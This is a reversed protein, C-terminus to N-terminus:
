TDVSMRKLTKYVVVMVDNKQIKEFVDTKLPTLLSANSARIEAFVADLM